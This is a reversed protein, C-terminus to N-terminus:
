FDWDYDKWNKSEIFNKHSKIYVINRRDDLINNKKNYNELATLANNNAELAENQKNRIYLFWSYKDWAKYGYLRTEKYFVNNLNMVYYIKYSPIYSTFLFAVFYIILFFQQTKISKTRVSLIIFYTLTTITAIIFVLKAWDQYQIRGILYITIFSISFYKLIDIQNSKINRFLYIVSHTLLLIGTLILIIGGFPLHFLKLSIGLTFLIWAIIYLKKM